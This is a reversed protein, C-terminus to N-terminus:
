VVKNMDVEYGSNRMEKALALKWAGHDDMPVYVVGSIDNPTEVDGKVLACVNHRGLKGNLFGHEFVVNQRARSRLDPKSSSKAGLDCPTYLVVGFGVNSYKEIKEIITSGSSAQEHIVIPEFDMKEIFRAVEIKALDDHGHVIFVKTVDFEIEATEKTNTEVPNSKIREEASSFVQKTIDKTYRDYSVVDERSVFMIIGPSMNRNEYKSLEETTRETEKVVIRKVESANVFYGDFQFRNGKLYPIVVDNEIEILNDKDLEFLQKYNGSKGVKESTEILVQYFM